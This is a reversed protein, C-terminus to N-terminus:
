HEGAHNPFCPLLQKPDQGLAPEDEEGQAYEAPSIIIMADYMLKIGIYTHGLFLPVRETGFCLFSSIETLVSELYLKEFLPDM